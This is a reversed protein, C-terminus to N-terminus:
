YIEYKLTQIRVVGLAFHVGVATIVEFGAGTIKPSSAESRWRVFRSAWRAATSECIEGKKKQPKWKSTKEGGSFNSSIRQLRLSCGRLAAQSEPVPIREVNAHVSM